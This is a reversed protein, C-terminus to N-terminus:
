LCVSVYKRIDDINTLCIMVEDFIAEKFKDFHTPFNDYCFSSKNTESVWRDNTCLGPKQACHQDAGQEPMCLITCAGYVPNHCFLEGVHIGLSDTISNWAHLGVSYKAM